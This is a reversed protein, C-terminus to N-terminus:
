AAVFNCVVKAKLFNCVQGKILFHNEDHLRNGDHSFSGWHKHNSVAGVCQSQRSKWNASAGVNLRILNQLKIEGGIRKRPSKKTQAASSSKRRM